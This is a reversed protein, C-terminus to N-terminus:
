DDRLSLSTNQKMNESKLVISVTRKNNHKKRWINRFGTFFQLRSLKIWFRNILRDITNQSKFRVQLSFSSRM